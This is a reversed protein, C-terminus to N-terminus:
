YVTETADRLTSIIFNAFGDQISIAEDDKLRLGGQGTLHGWGRIWILALDNVFITGNKYSYNHLTKVKEDSGNIIRVIKQKDQLSIQLTDIDKIFSPIFDFAMKFDPTMVKTSYKLELPFKYVTRWDIFVSKSVDTQVCQLMPDTNSIIENM